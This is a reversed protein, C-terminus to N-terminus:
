VLRRVKKGSQELLRVAYGASHDERYVLEAIDTLSLARACTPCPMVNIFMTTDRLNIEQQQAQIIAHMEAHVADYHNLDNPPSFNVERSAGHHMAYTEYPVVRNHDFLLPQYTDSKTPRGIAVGVQFSYDFSQRAAKDALELMDNENLKHQSDLPPLAIIKAVNRAYHQAEDEDAFPSVMDYPIAKSALSYYTARNHFAYHWSGRVLVVRKFRLKDIVTDTERQFYSLIYLKSRSSSANVKDALPKIDEVALAKFQAQGEFGDIYPEKSLGIVVNGQPLYEKILQKLRESSVHRPAAVFAAKLSRIHSKDGFAIDSWDIVYPNNTM